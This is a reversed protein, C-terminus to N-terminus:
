RSAIPTTVPVFAISVAAVMWGTSICCAAIRFKTSPFYGTGAANAGTVPAAGAVSAGASTLAYPNVFARNRAGADIRQRHRPRCAFLALILVWPTHIASRRNSASGPGSSGYFNRQKAMWLRRRESDIPSHIIALLDARAVRVEDEGDRAKVVRGESLQIPSMGARDESERLSQEVFAASGLFDDM